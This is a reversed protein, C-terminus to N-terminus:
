KYKQIAEYILNFDNPIKEEKFLNEPSRGSNLGTNQTLLSYTLKGGEKKVQTYYVHEMKGEINMKTAVKGLTKMRQRTDPGSKYEEIHCLLFAVPIVKEDFAGAEIGERIHDIIENYDQPIVQYATPAKKTGYVTRGGEWTPNKNDCNYWMNTGPELTKMGYSKGTGEYGPVLVVEFGLDQLDLIFKYIEKGFDFWEDHAAKKQMSMWEDNQLGNLTDVVITKFKKGAM